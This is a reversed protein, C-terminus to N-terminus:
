KYYSKWDQMQPSPPRRTPPTRYQFTLTPIEDLPLKWGAEEGIHADALLRSGYPASFKTWYGFRPDTGHLDRQALLLNVTFHHKIKTQSWPFQLLITDKEPAEKM